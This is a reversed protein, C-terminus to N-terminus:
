RVLDIGRAKISVPAESHVFIFFTYESARSVGFNQRYGLDELGDAGGCDVAEM